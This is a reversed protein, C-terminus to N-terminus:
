FVYTEDNPGIEEQLIDTVIPLNKIKYDYIGPVYKEKDIEYKM